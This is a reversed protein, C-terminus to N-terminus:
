PPAEEVPPTTLRVGRGGVTSSAGEGILEVGAKELAEVVRVLSEVNGRVQGASAEM